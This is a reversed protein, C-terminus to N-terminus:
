HHYRKNSSKPYRQSSDAEQSDESEEDEAMVYDSDQSSISVHSMGAKQRNGDGSQVQQSRPAGGSGTARNLPPTGRFSPPPVPPTAPRAPDSAFTLKQNDQKIHGWVDANIVDLAFQEIAPLEPLQRHPRIPYIMMSPTEYNIVDFYQKSITRFIAEQARLGAVSRNVSSIRHYETKTPLNPIKLRNALLISGYYLADQRRMFPPDNLRSLATGTPPPPPPPIDVRQQTPLRPQERQRQSNQRRLDEVRRPPQSQNRPRDRQQNQDRQSRSPQDSQRRQDRHSRPPQDSRGYKTQEGRVDSSENIHWREARGGPQSPPAMDARTPSSVTVRAETPPTPGQPRPPLTPHGQSRQQVRKPVRDRSSVTTDERLGHYAPEQRSSSAYELSAVLLELLTKEDLAITIFERRIPLNNIIVVVRINRLLNVIVDNARKVEPVM